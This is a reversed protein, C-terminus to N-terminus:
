QVALVVENSPGSTGCANTARLRVFYTGRGVGGFTASTASSGLNANALNAAGSASGAEIIYSTAGPSAGWAFSVTGGSNFTLTFGAPAPPAGSCAGGVVLVSENSAPGTGAGNTAKVRVYYSGSPVGDGTFVTATNGTSFNALNSLGSASGAEIRYASPAGGSTPATWTLRVASGAASTVLNTVAGPATTSSAGPYIFRIGAVDDANLGPSGGSCASFSVSPFMIAGPDSSHGMGLVHGIEHTAVFQFCGSNHLLTQVDPADNTVYYGAVIRGFGVGNVTRGGSTTQQFGGIAIISQNDAIDGCPDNFIISIRSDIPGAGFCRSTNGGGAFRLGAAGSWAGTARGLEAFGGGALGPQGSTQTDVPISAASDFENWRAPGLQTFPLADRAPQLAVGRMEDAGPEIAFRRAGSAPAGAGITELRSTFAALSRREAADRLAGHGASEPDRRTAIRESTAADRELTWKGQWLATTYLTGDRRRADLFLLVEEGTTFEAQGIVTFTEDGIRGGLQKVVISRESIDGKFVRDVAVTVYTHTVGTRIDRGTGIATVRGSVIASAFSALQEDSWRPAVDARAAAAAGALACVVALWIRVTRMM